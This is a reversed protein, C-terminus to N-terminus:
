VPSLRYTVLFQGLREFCYQCTETLQKDLYDMFRTWYQRTKRFQELGMQEDEPLRDQATLHLFQEATLNLLVATDPRILADVRGSSEPHTYPMLMPDQYVHSIADMGRIWLTLIRESNRCRARNAPDESLSDLLHTMIPLLLEKTFKIHTNVYDGQSEHFLYFIADDDLELGMREAFQHRIYFRLLSM